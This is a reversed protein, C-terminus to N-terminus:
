TGSQTVISEARGEPSLQRAAGSLPVDEPRVYLDDISCCLLDAMAPLLAAPPWARGTEYQAIRSRDIGLDEAFREQSYGAARRRPALGVLGKEIFKCM